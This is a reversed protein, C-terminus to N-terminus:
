ACQTWTRLCVWVKVYTCMAFLKKKKEQRRELFVHKTYIKGEKKKTGYIHRKNDIRIPDIDCHGYQQVLVDVRQKEKERERKPNRDGQHRAQQCGGKKKCTTGDSIIERVWEAETCVFFSLFQAMHLSIPQM